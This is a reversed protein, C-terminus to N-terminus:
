FVVGPRLSVFVRLESSFSQAKTARADEHQVAARGFALCTQQLPSGDPEGAQRLAAPSASPFIIEGAIELVSPLIQGRRGPRTLRSSRCTVQLRLGGLEGGFCGCIVRIECILSLSDHGADEHQVAAHGFALCTQQLPSGDPEGM